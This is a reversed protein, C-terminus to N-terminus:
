NGLFQNLAFALIGVMAGLVYGLRVILKLERETVTRVIEEMRQTSFGLVKQEVMEQVNLKEVVKPVQSQVWGWASAAVDQRIAAATEAGLWQAPRGIPIDLLRTASQSVAQAVWARGADGRLADGILGTVRENPLLALVDGWTRQGAADIGRELARHVSARTSPSRAAIVLWDGLTEILATRREPGLRALREGLPMRLLGVFAQHLAGALRSRVAPATIAAAFREFGNREIGDLLRDFTQENVVLKALIREHLLLQRAAGDFARRLAGSITARTEPDSLLGSVKDIATPLYDDIAQEVPALLGSPLRDAVPRPDQELIELQHAVWGRLTQELEHGEAATSMWDDVRTLISERIAPTLAGSMPKDGADRRLRDMWGAIMEEFAPTETFTALRDAMRPGIDDVIGQVAQEARPPLLQRLSGHDRDLLDDIVRGMAEDFAERVAPASLRAAVDEPTLLREGVTKGITRALRPKNKPIAGHFLIFFLRRPEHPRFLMWIAIANTVGGSIAGVLVTAIGSLITQQDM